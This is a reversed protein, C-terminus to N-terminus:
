LDDPFYARKITDSDKGVLSNYSMIGKDNLKLLPSQINAYIKNVILGKYSFVLVCISNNFSLSGSSILIVFFVYFM